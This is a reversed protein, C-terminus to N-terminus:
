APFKHSGNAAICMGIVPISNNQVNETLERVIQQNSRGREFMVQREEGIVPPMKLADLPQFDFGLRGLFCGKRPGLSGIPAGEGGELRRGDGPGARAGRSM